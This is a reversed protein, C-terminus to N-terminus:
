PTRERTADIPLSGNSRIPKPAIRTVEGIGDAIALLADLEAIRTQAALLATRENKWSSIRAELENRLETAIKDDAASM